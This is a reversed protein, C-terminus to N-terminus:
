VKCTEMPLHAHPPWYYVASITRPHVLRAVEGDQLGYGLVHVRVQQEDPLAEGDAAEGTAGGGQSRRIVPLGAEEVYDLDMERELDQHYGICAYPSAPQVLILTNPSVGRHVAEAVAEYFAQATYPEAECLDILRWYELYIV